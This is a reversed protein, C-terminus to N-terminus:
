NEVGIVFYQCVSMSSSSGILTPGGGNVMRGQCLPQSIDLNVRVWIWRGRYDRTGSDEVCEVQGLTSRIAAANEKRM